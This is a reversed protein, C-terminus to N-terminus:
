TAAAFTSAVASAPHLCDFFRNAADGGPQAVVDSIRGSKSYRREFVHPSEHRGAFVWQDQVNPGVEPLRNASESLSKGGGYDMRELRARSSKLLKRLIDCCVFAHRGPVTRDASGSAFLRKLLVRVGVHAGEQAQ